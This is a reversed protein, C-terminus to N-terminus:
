SEDTIEVQVARRDSWNGTEKQYEWKKKSDSGEKEKKDNKDGRAKQWVLRKRETM